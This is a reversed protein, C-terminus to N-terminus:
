ELRIWKIICRPIRSFGYVRGVHVHGSFGALVLTSPIHSIMCPAVVGPLCLSIMFARFLALRVIRPSLFRRISSSAREFWVAGM